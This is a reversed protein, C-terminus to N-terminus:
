NERLKRLAAACGDIDPEENIDMILISNIIEQKDIFFLTREAVGGRESGVSTHRYAIGVPLGYGKNRRKRFRQEHKKETGATMRTCTTAIPKRIPRSRTLTAGQGIANKSTYNHSGM